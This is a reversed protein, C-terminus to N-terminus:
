IAPGSRPYSGNASETSTSGAAAFHKVLLKDRYEAPEIGMAKASIPIRFALTERHLENDILLVKGPEPSFGWFKRGTVMCLLLQYVLWSKGTKPPAVLNATEGERLLGHLVARRLERHSDTLLGIAEFGDTVARSHSEADLYNALFGRVDAAPLRDRIQQALEGQLEWLRRKAAAERVLDAYHGAYAATAEAAHISKLLAVREEANPLEGSAAIRHGLLLIDDTPQGELRMGVLQRYVLRHYPDFFDGPQLSAVKPNDIQSGDLMMSSLVSREVDTAAPPDDGHPKGNGNHNV